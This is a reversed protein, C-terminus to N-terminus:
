ARLQLLTSKDRRTVILEMVPNRIQRAPCKGGRAYAVVRECVLTTGHLPWFGLRDSETAAGFWPVSWWLGRFLLSVKQDPVEPVIPCVTNVVHTDHVSICLEIPLIGRLYTQLLRFPTLLLHVQLSAELLTM